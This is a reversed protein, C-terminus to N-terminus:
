FIDKFTSFDFESLPIHSESTNNDVPNGGKDYYQQGKKVKVYPERSKEHPSSPNGPMVRVRTSDDEPHVFELGQPTNKNSKSAKVSWDDPIGKGQLDKSLKELNKYNGENKIQRYKKFSDDIYSNPGHLVKAANRYSEANGVLLALASLFRDQTSLVENDFFSEGTILEYLDILDNLGPVFGYGFKAMDSYLLKELEKLLTNLVKDSEYYIAVRQVDSRLPVLQFQKLDVQTAKTSTNYFTINQEDIGESTTSTYLDNIEDVAILSKDSLGQKSKLNEINNRISQYDYFRGQINEYAESVESPLHQSMENLIMSKIKEETERPIKKEANADISKLIQKHQNPYYDWYTKRKLNWVLEQITDSSYRKEESLRLLDPLYLIRDDPNVNNLNSLRFKENEEPVAKDPDLCYSKFTLVLKSKAPVELTGQIPRYKLKLYSQFLYDYIKLDEASLPKKRKIIHSFNKIQQKIHAVDIQNTDITQTVSKQIDKDNATERNKAHSKNTKPSYDTSLACSNLFLSFSLVSLIVNKLTM